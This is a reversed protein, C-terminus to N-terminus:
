GRWSSLWRAFRRHPRNLRRLVAAERRRRTDGDREAHAAAVRDEWAAVRDEVMERIVPDISDSVVATTHLTVGAVNRTRSIIRAGDIPDFRPHTSHETM